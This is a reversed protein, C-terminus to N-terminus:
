GSVCFLYKRLYYKIVVSYTHRCRSSHQSKSISLTHDTFNLYLMLIKQSVTTGLKSLYKQEKLNANIICKLHLDRVIRQGSVQKRHVVMAQSIILVSRNSPHSKFAQNVIFKGTSTIHYTQNTPKTKKRPPPLHSNSTYM